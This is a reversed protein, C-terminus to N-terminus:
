GVVPLWTLTGNPHEEERRAAEITFEQGNRAACTEDSDGDLARAGTVVPSDEYADLSAIRQATITETRAILTARYKAGANVYRGAPIEDRIRRAVTIPNDGADTGDRIARQLARRTDTQLDILHRRNAGTQGLRNMSHETLLIDLDLADNLTEVTRRGVRRYHRDLRTRLHKDAWATFNVAALISNVLRELTDSLAKTNGDEDVRALYETACTDALEDLAPRLDATLVGTLHKVDRTLMRGLTAEWRPARQATATM